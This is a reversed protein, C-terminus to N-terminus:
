KFPNQPLFDAGFYAMLMVSCASFGIMLLSNVTGDADCLKLCLMPKKLPYLLQIGKRNLLDLAIHSVMGVCLANALPQCVFSLSLTMLLVGLLSHSFTRHKSFAGWVCCALFVAAGVIAATDFTRQFYALIGNGIHLDFLLSAAIVGIALTVAKTTERNLETGKCDIDCIAGGLAGGAVASVFGLMTTPRLALLAATVGAPVHTKGLM